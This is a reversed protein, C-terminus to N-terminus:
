RTPTTPSCRTPGRRCAATGPAFLTQLQFIVDYRGSWSRAPARHERQAAPLAVRQVRGARAVRGAHSPLPAAHERLRGRGPVSPRVNGVLDFRRGLAHYVTAFRAATQEDPPIEELAAGLLRVDSGSEPGSATLDPRRRPRSRDGTVYCCGHAPGGTPQDCPDRGSLNPPDGRHFHRDMRGALRGAEVLRADGHVSDAAGHELRARGVCALRHHEHM